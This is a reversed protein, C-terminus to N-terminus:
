TQEARYSSPPVGFAEKFCRSFYSLSNFGVAYAVETVTGQEAELLEAGKNLRMSRLLASPTQGLEDKVRDTLHGRSLGVEDALDAVSFDPDSLHCRAAARVREEFSLPADVDPGEDTEGRFRERLQRRADLLRDVTARLVERDFPKTLYADAGEELGEVHATTASRATLLVVPICATREDQRLLRLMSFGDRNPMMVDSVILDPLAARARALAREGDAAELVHFTDALVDRVYRRVDVEDDVVLITTRDNPPSEAGDTAPPRDLAAETENGTMPPRSSGNDGRGKREAASPEEAWDVGTIEFRAGGATGEAAEVTWGHADVIEQVISLGFGTGEPATTYGSEFLQDLDADSLGAGDDEVYFSDAQNGVTVTVAEGGHEVANRILNEFLQQLRREEAVVVRTSEVRLQAQATDVHQWAAQAAEGIPVPATDDAEVSEGQGALVLLDDILRRMRELARDAARVHEDEYTDRILELRGTAVNLPNRLDHSVVGVFRDLRENERELEQEREHLATIDHLMVVWGAQEVGDRIVSSQVQLVRDEVTFTLPASRDELIGTGSLVPGAPRGVLTEEGLLSRAAPNADVIQRSADILVYGDETVALAQRRGVPLLDFLRYRVIALAVLGLTATSFAPVVNIGDGGPPYVELAKLLSATVPLLLAAGILLAPTRRTSGSLDNYAVFLAVFLFVGHGWALFAVFLPPFEHELAYLGDAAVLTPEAIMVSEPNLMILPVVVAPVLALLAIVSRTLWRKYGLYALALVVTVSPTVGSGLFELKYWWLKAPLHVSAVKLTAATNYIANLVALLGVSAVVLSYGHRRLRYACYAVVGVSFLVGLQFVLLLPHYQWM